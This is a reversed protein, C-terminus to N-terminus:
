RIVISNHNKTMHLRYSVTLVKLMDDLTDSAEFAGTFRQHRISDNDCRIDIHYVHELTNFVEQLTNDNFVMSKTIWDTNIEQQRFLNLQNQQLNYVLEESAGVQQVISAVSVAVKGTKVSVKPQGNHLSDALVFSTGLVTVRLNPSSIVFPHKDPVVDFYAEGNVKVTRNKGHFTSPFEIITGGNLVAVSSDPLMVKQVRYKDAYVQKLPIPHVWEEIEESYHWATGATVMLLISAAAASIWRLYMRPRMATRLHDLVELRQVETDEPVERNDWAQQLYQDILQREKAPARGSLYNNLIRKLQVINM